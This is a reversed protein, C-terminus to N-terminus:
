VNDTEKTNPVPEQPSREGRQDKTPQSCRALHLLAFTMLRHCFVVVDLPDAVIGLSNEDQSITCVNQMKNQSSVMRIGFPEGVVMDTAADGENSDTHVIRKDDVLYNRAQWEALEDQTMEVRVSVRNNSPPLGRSCKDTALKTGCTLCLAGSLRQPLPWRGPVKFWYATELTLTEDCTTCKWVM